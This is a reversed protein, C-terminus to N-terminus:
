KSYNTTNYPFPSINLTFATVTPPATVHASRQTNVSAASHISKGEVRYLVCIRWESVTFVSANAPPDPCVPAYGLAAM